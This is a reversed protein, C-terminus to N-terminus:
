RSPLHTSSIGAGFGFFRLAALTFPAPRFFAAARLGAARLFAAFFFDARFFAAGAYNRLLQRSTWSSLIAISVTLIRECRPGFPHLSFCGHSSSQERQPRRALTPDISYESLASFRLRQGIGGGLEVRIWNSDFELRDTVQHDDIALRHITPRHDHNITTTSSQRQHKDILTSSLPRHLHVVISPLLPWGSSGSPFDSSHDTLTRKVTRRIGHHLARLICQDTLRTQARTRHLRIVELSSPQMSPRNPSQLRSTRRSVHPGLM